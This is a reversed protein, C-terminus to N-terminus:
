PYVNSYCLSFFLFFLSAMVMQWTIWVQLLAAVYIGSLSVTMMTMMSITMTKMAMMVVKKKKIKFLHNSLHWDIVHHFLNKGAKRHEGKARHFIPKIEEPRDPVNENQSQEEAEFMAIDDESYVM